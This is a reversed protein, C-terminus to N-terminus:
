VTTENKHGGKAVDFLGSILLAWLIPHFVILTIRWPSHYSLISQLWHYLYPSACFLLAILSSGSLFLTARTPKLYVAVISFVVSLVGSYLLGSRLQLRWDPVNLEGGFYGIAVSSSQSFPGKPLAYAPDFLSYLHTYNISGLLALALSFVLCLNLFKPLFKLEIIFLTLLIFIPLVNSILTDSFGFVPYPSTIAFRLAVILLLFLGILYCVRLAFHDRDIIFGTRSSGLRSISAAVLYCFMAVAFWLIEAQHTFFIITGLVLIAAIPAICKSIFNVVDQKIEQHSNPLKDFIAFALYFTVFWATYAIHSPWASVRLYSIGIGPLLIFLVAALTAINSNKCVRLSLLYFAMVKLVAGWATFSNWFISISIGSLTKLLALNAHWLPPYYRTDLGTLHGISTTYSNELALKNALSMHWWSDAIQEILGGNYFLTVFIFAYLTVRAWSIEFSLAQSNRLQVRFIFVLGILACSLVILPLLASSFRVSFLDFALLLLGNLAISLFFGSIIQGELPRTLQRFETSIGRLCWTFLLGNFFLIYGIWLHSEANFYIPMM